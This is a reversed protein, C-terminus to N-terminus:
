GVKLIERLFWQYTRNLGEEITVKSSWGMGDMVSTDVMRRMMGDPKTPDCVIKGEYGVVKKILESLELISIESGSGINIVREKSEFNALFVCADALDDVYLFERKAKGTGWLVVEPLKNLKAEHYKRLLAPIVHSKKVDFCDNIGYCNAPIVSVYDVGYEKSYYECARLGAIKAIAYPENTPELASTLLASETMPQKAEKPYMCASGLFLLKKVGCSYSARLINNQIELNDMLFEVPLQSNAQIGGVRAAAMFVYGPQEIEFFKKVLQTDRLDLTSSDRLILNYFGEAKLRRVIASGVMGNHGAIFIKADKNM